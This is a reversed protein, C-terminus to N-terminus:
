GRVQIIRESEGQEGGFTWDRNRERRVEDWYCCFDQSGHNTFSFPSLLILLFTNEHFARAGRQVQAQERAEEGEGEGEREETREPGQVGRNARAMVSGQKVAGM